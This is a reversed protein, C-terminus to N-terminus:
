EPPDDHGVDEGIEEVAEEPEPKVNRVILLLGLAVAALLAPAVAVLTLLSRSDYLSLAVFVANAALFLGAVIYAFRRM